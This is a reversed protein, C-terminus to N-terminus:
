FVPLVQGGTSCTGIFRGMVPGLHDEDDSHGHPAECSVIGLCRGGAAACGDTTTVAGLSLGSALASLLGLGHARHLGNYISEIGGHHGYHDHEDSIEYHSGDDHKHGGVDHGKHEDSDESIAGNGHLSFDLDSHDGHYGGSHHNFAGLLGFGHGFFNHGFHGGDHEDSSKDDSDDHYGHHSNDSKDDSSHGHGASKAGAGVTLVKSSSPVATTVNDQSNVATVLCCVACVIVLM